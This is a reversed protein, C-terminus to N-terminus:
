KKDECCCPNSIKENHLVRSLKGNFLSYKTTDSVFETKHLVVTRAQTNKLGEGLCLVYDTLPSVFEPDHTVIIITRKGKLESLTKYLRSESEGDMNASPEDLILLYPDSALARALLVRRRQGGSLESYLRHSLDKIDAKLIAEDIAQEDESTIKRAFNKLRGMAVVDRVTVPFVRDHEFSQPVYGIADRGSYKGNFDEFLVIAGSRPRYIGLLLKLVTTKGAGNPGVLAVFDGHHIHFTVNQLVPINGYSFSVDSFRVVVSRDKSDM